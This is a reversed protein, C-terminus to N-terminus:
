PISLSIHRVKRNEIASGDGGATVTFSLTVGRHEQLVRYFDTITFGLVIDGDIVGAQSMIGGSKPHLTFVEEVEKDEIILCPSGHSFGLAHRLEQAIEGQYRQAQWVTYGAFVWLVM